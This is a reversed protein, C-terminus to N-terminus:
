TSKIMQSLIKDAKRQYYEEDNRACSYAIQMAEKPTEGIAKISASGIRYKMVIDEKHVFSVIMDNDEPLSLIRYVKEAIVQESRLNYIYVTEGKEPIRKM